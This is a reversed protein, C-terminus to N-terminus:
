LAGAEVGTLRALADQWVPRLAQRESLDDGGAAELRHGVLGEHRHRASRACAGARTRASCGAVARDGATAPATAATTGPAAGDTGPAAAVPPAVAAPAPAAAGAVQRDCGVAAEGARRRDRQSRGPSVERLVAQGQGAAQGKRVLRGRQVHLGPLAEQRVGGPVQEGAADFEGRVFLTQATEFDDKAEALAKDPSDEAARAIATTGFSSLVALLLAATRLWVSTMPSRNSLLLTPTDLNGGSGFESNETPSERNDDFSPLRYRRARPSPGPLRPSPPRWRPVGRLRRGARGSAPCRGWPRAAGRHLGGRGCCSRARRSRLPACLWARRRRRM